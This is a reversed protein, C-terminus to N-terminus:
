RFLSIANPSCLKTLSHHGCNCSGYDIIIKFFIIFIIEVNFFLVIDIIKWDKLNQKVLVHIIVSLVKLNMLFELLLHQKREQSYWEPKYIAINIEIKSRHFNISLHLRQTGVTWQWQPPVLLYLIHLFWEFVPLGQAMVKLLFGVVIDHLLHQKLFFDHLNHIVILYLYLIWSLIYGMWCEAHESLQTPFPVVLHMSSVFPSSYLFIVVRLQQGDHVDHSDMMFM